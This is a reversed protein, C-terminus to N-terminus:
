KLKSSIKIMQPPSNKGHTKSTRLVFLFKRKNKGIHADRALVSHVGSAVESVRLLGFYMTSYLAKFLCCLFPQSGFHTDIQRILVGLMSRQIPLRTKICDNQLHCARTLSCLLYKDERIAINSSKLVAKIASIYSEVTSSQRNNHVLFAVFLTLRSEWDSPKKDLRLIFANFVKWITYYNHKTSDRHQWNQLSKVINNMEWTSIQSSATSSKSSTKKNPHKAEALFVCYAIFLCVQSKLCLSTHNVGGSGSKTLQGFKM